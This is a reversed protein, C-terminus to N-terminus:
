LDSSINKVSALYADKEMLDIATQLSSMKFHKKEVFKNFHKLNLILRVSGDKKPKIFINSIYEGQEPKNDVSTIIKERLM